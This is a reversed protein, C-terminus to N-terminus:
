VGSPKQMAKTFMERSMERYTDSLFDKENIQKKDELNELRTELADHSLQWLIVSFAGMTRVNRRNGAVRNISMVGAPDFIM